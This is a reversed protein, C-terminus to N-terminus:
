GSAGTEIGCCAWDSPLGAGAMSACAPGRFVLVRCLTVAGTLGTAEITVMSSAATGPGSVLSHVGMASTSACSLTRSGAGSCSALVGRVGCVLLAGGGSEGGAGSSGQALAGRAPSSLSQMTHRSASRVVRRTGHRCAANQALQAEARSAVGSGTHGKHLTSQMRQSAATHIHPCVFRVGGRRRHRM